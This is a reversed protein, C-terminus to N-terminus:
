LRGLSSVVEIMIKAIEPVENSNLLQEDIFETAEEVEKHNCSNAHMIISGIKCLYACRDDEKFGDRVMRDNIEQLDNVLTKEM